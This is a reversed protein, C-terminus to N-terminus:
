YFLIQKVKKLTHLYVSVNLCKSNPCRKAEHGAGGCMYCKLVKPPDPCSAAVHGFQCCNFCKAWQKKRNKRNFGSVIDKDSVKWLNPNKDMEQQLKHVLFSEEGGWDEEYFKIMDLTWHNPCDYERESSAVHESVNETVRLIAEYLPNPRSFRRLKLSSARYFNVCHIPNSVSRRETPLQRKFDRGRRRPRYMSSVTETSSANGHRFLRQEM